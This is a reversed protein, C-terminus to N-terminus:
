EAAMSPLMIRASENEVTWPRRVGGIAEAVALGSQLGDEHFGQGFHAGAHWIGGRGQLAWVATQARAAEVNFMPHEYDFEAVIKDQPIPQLPNLTVFIQEDCKLNQLRNMWYSVSAGNEDGIYNWSAWARKKRPMQAKDFHLYARNPQYGFAGFVSREQ